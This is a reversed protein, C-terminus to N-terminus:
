MEIPTDLRISYSGFQIIHIRDLGIQQQQEERMKELFVDILKM